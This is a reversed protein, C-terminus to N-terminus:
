LRSPFSKNKIEGIYPKGNLYEYRNIKYDTFFDEIRDSIYANTLEVTRSLVNGKKKVTFVLVNDFVYWEDPNDGFFKIYNNNESLEAKKDKLEEFYLPSSLKELTLIHKDPKSVFSIFDSYDDYVVPIFTKDDCIIEEFNYFQNEPTIQRNHTQDVVYGLLHRLQPMQGQIQYLLEVEEPLHDIFQM